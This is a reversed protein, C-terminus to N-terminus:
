KAKTIPPLTVKADKPMKKTVDTNGNRKSIEEAIKTAPNPAKPFKM